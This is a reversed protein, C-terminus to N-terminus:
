RPSTIPRVKVLEGKKVEISQCTKEPVKIIGKGEKEIDEIARVKCRAIKGNFGEIEVESIIHGNLPESWEKILHGDIEATDGSFRSIFGRGTSIVVLQKSLSFNIGPPKAPAPFFNELLKLITPIIVNAMSRIYQIDANKSTISTLYMDGARSLYIKGKEGEVIYIEPDNELISQFSHVSKEVQIEDTQADVAVVSGDEKLIFSSSVSPCINRMETLANRLASAYMEKSM